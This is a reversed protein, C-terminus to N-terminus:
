IQITFDFNDFYIILSVSSQTNKNESIAPKWFSSSNVAFQLNLKKSKINTQNDASILCPKGISDVLIQIELLGKLKKLSAANLNKFLEEKLTQPPQAKTEGCDLCFQSL